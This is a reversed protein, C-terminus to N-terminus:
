SNEPKIPRQALARVAEVPSTQGTLVRTVQEILPTEIGHQKALKLVEPAARVGEVFDADRAGVTVATPMGLSLKKAFTPGSIVAFPRNDGLTAAM